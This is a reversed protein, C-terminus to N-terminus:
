EEIKRTSSSTLTSIVRSSLHKNEKTLEDFLTSMFDNNFKHYKM